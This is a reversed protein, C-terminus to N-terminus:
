NWYSLSTKNLLLAVSGPSPSMGFQSVIDLRAPRSPVALLPGDADYPTTMAGELWLTAALDGYEAKLWPDGEQLVKLAAQELTDTSVPAGTLKQMAGEGSEVM